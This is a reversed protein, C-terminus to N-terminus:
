RKKRAATSKQVWADVVKYSHVFTGNDTLHFEILIQFSDPVEADLFSLKAERAILRTLLVGTTFVEGVSEIARGNNSAVMTVSGVQIGPRRGVIAYAVQSDTQTSVNGDRYTLANAGNATIAHEDITFRFPYNKQYEAIMGNSRPTGLVVMNELPATQRVQLERLKSEHRYANREVPVGCSRLYHSVDWLLRLDGLTVFPYATWQSKELKHPENKTVDRIYVSSAPDHEFLPEGYAFRTPVNEPLLHPAWFRRLVDDGAMEFIVDYHDEGRSKGREATQIRVRWQLARGPGEFYRKLKGNIRLIRQSINLSEENERGFLAAALAKQSRHQRGDPGAHDVLHRLIREAWDPTFEPWLYIANLTATQSPAFYNM